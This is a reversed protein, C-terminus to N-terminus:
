KKKIKNQIKVVLDPIRDCAPQVQFVANSVISTDSIFYFLVYHPLVNSSFLQPTTKRESNSVRDEADHLEIGLSFATM